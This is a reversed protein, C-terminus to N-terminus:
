SAVMRGHVADLAKALGFGGLARRAGGLATLAFTPHGQHEALNVLTVSRELRRAELVCERFTGFKRVTSGDAPDPGKEPPTDGSEFGKDLALTPVRSINWHAVTTPSTKRRTILM